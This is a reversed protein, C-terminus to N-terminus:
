RLSERSRSGQWPWDISPNASVSSWCCKGMTLELAQASVLYSASPLSAIIQHIYERVAMPLAYYLRRQNLAELYQAHRREYLPFFDQPCVDKSGRSPLASHAPAAPTSTTAQYGALVPAAGSRDLHTAPATDTTPICFLRFELQTSVTTEHCSELPSIIPSHFLRLM